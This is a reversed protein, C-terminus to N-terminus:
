ALTAPVSPLLAEAYLPRSAARDVTMAYAVLSEPWCSTTASRGPASSRKRRQGGRKNGSAPSTIRSLAGRSLVFLRDDGLGSAVEDAQQALQLSTPLDTFLTLASTFVLAEAFLAPDAAAEPRRLVPLLLRAAEENRSRSSWHKWLAVGFRLVPATQDPRSARSALPTACTPRTPTWGSM